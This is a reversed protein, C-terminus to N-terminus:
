NVRRRKLCLMTSNAMFVEFKVLATINNNYYDSTNFEVRVEHVGGALQDLDIRATGKIIQGHGIESGNLLVRVTGNANNSINVFAVPYDPYTVDDITVNIVPNVRNVVFTANVKRINYNSDGYFVLTATKNGALM